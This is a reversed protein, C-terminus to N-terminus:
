RSRSTIRVNFQSADKNADTVSALLEQLQTMAKAMNEQTFKAQLKM